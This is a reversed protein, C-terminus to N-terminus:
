CADTAGKKVVLNARRCDFQVGNVRLIRPHEVTVGAREAILRDLFVKRPQGLDSEWSSHAIRGNALHWTRGQILDYDRSDVCIDFSGCLNTWVSEQPSPDLVAWGDPVSWLHLADYTGRLIDRVRQSVNIGEHEADQEIERYVAHPVRVVITRNRLSM